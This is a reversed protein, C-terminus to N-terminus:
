GNFEDWSMNHADCICTSERIITGDFDVIGVRSVDEDIQACAVYVSNPETDLLLAKKGVGRSFALETEKILGLGILETVIRGVSTPSMGTIRALESRSVPKKERILNLINGKNVKRMMEQDHKVIEYAM